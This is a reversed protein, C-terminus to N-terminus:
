LNLSSDTATLWVIRPLVIKTDAIHPQEGLSAICRISSPVTQWVKRPGKIAAM